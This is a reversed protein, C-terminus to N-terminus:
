VLPHDPDGLLAEGAFSALFKFVEWHGHYLSIFCATLGTKSKEHVDAGHQHLRQIEALNGTMAAIHWPSLGLADDKVKMDKLPEQM